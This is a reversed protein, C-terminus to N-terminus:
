VIYAIKSTPLYKKMMDGIFKAGEERLERKYMYKGKGRGTMKEQDFLITAAPFAEPNIMKHVYSYTMFIFEFEIERKLSDDLEESLIKFLEEYHM